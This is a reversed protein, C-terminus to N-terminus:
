SVQHCASRFHKGMMLSFQMRLWAFAVKDRWIVEGWENLDNEWASVVLNVLGPNHLFEFLSLTRM